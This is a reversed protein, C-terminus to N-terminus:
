VTFETFFYIFFAIIGKLEQVCANITDSSIGFMGTFTGDEEAGGQPRLNVFPPFRDSISDLHSTGGRQLELMPPGFRTM